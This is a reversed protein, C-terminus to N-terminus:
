PHGDSVTYAGKKREEFKRQVHNSQKKEEEGEAPADKKAGKKTVPQAYQIRNLDAEAKNFLLFIVLTLRTGSASPPPM